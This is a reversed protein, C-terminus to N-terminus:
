PLLMLELIVLPFWRSHKWHLFECQVVLWQVCHVAEVPDSPERGPEPPEAQRAQLRGVVKEHRRVLMLMLM